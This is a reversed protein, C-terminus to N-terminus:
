SLPRAPRLESHDVPVDLTYLTGWSDDDGYDIHKVTVSAPTAEVVEVVLPDDRHDVTLLWREALHRLGTADLAKEADDLDVDACLLYGFLTYASFGDDAPAIYGVHEGDERRHHKFWSDPIM